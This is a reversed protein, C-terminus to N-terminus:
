EKDLLMGDYSQKIMLRLWESITVNYYDCIDKLNQKEETTLRAKVIENKKTAANKLTDVTKLTDTM